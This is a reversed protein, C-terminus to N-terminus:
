FQHFVSHRRRQIWWEVDHWVLTSGVLTLGALPYGGDPGTFSHVVQFDSGDTKISFVTGSHAPDSSNAGGSATTGFLTSGVLTLGAEPDQGDPGSFSHLVQVSSGHTNTSFVDGYNDLGNGKTTGFLKSGVPTLASIPDVGDSGSFSHLFQFTGTLLRRDELREFGVLWYNDSARSAPCSIGGSRSQYGKKPM